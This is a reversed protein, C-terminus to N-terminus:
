TLQHPQHSLHIHITYLSPQSSLNPLTLPLQMAPTWSLTGTGSTADNLPKLIKAIGPLFHCYFNLMGM